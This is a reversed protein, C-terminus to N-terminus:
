RDQDARDAAKRLADFNVQPAPAPNEAPQNEQDARVADVLAAARAGFNGAVSFGVVAAIFFLVPVLWLWGSAMFAFAAAFALAAGSFIWLPGAVKHAQDWTAKDKRVEPVRLGFFSNGPLKGATAMGGPVVLALALILLLVGAVLNAASMGWLM